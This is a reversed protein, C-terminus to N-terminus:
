KLGKKPEVVAPPFLTAYETKYHCWKAYLPSQQDPEKWFTDVLKWLHKNRDVLNKFDSNTLQDHLEKAEKDVITSSSVLNEATYSNGIKMMMVRSRWLVNDLLTCQEQLLSEFLKPNWQKWERQM